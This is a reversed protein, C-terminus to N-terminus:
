EVKELASNLDPKADRYLEEFDALLREVAAHRADAAIVLRADLPAAKGLRLHAAPEPQDLRHLAIVRDALAIDHDLRHELADRDLLLHEGLEVLDHLGAREEERVGRADVDVDHRICGLPRLVDGARMEKAGALTM